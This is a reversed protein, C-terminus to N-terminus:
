PALLIHFKDIEDLAKWRTDGKREIRKGLLIGFELSYKSAFIPTSVVSFSGESIKGAQSGRGGRPRIFLWASELGGGPRGTERNKERETERDTCRKRDRQRDTARARVLVKWLKLEM